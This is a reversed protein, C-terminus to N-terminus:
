WDGCIGGGQPSSADHRVADYTPHIGCGPLCDVGGPPGPVIRGEGGPAQPSKRVGPPSPPPDQAVRFRPQADPRGVVQPTSSATKTTPGVLPPPYPSSRTTFDFMYYFRVNQSFTFIPAQCTDFTLACNWLPSAPARGIFSHGNRNRAGQFPATEASLEAILKSRCM